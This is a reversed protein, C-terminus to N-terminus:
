IGLRGNLRVHSRGIPDYVAKFLHLSVGYSRGIDTLAEGNARRAIAERVQFSFLKPKRGFKIGCAQARTRGEATRALIM